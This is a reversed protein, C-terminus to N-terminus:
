SPCPHLTGKTSANYLIRLVPAGSIGTADTTATSVTTGTTNGTAGGSATDPGTLAFDALSRPAPATASPMGQAPAGTDQAQTDRVQVEPAPAQPTTPTPMHMRPEGAAAFPLGSPLGDRAM